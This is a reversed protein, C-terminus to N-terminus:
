SIYNNHGFILYVLQSSLLATHHFFSEFFGNPAMFFDFEKRSM